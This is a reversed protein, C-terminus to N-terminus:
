APLAGYEALFGVSSWLQRRPLLNLAESARWIRSLVRLLMVVRVIAPALLKAVDQVIRILVLPGKHGWVREAVHDRENRHAGLGSPLPGPAGKFNPLRGSLM